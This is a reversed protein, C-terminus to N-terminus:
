LEHNNLCEASHTVPAFKAAKAPIGKQSCHLMRTAFDNTSPARQHHSKISEIVSQGAALSGTRHRVVYNLMADCRTQGLHVLLSEAAEQQSLSVRESIATLGITEAAAALDRTLPSDAFGRRVTELDRLLRPGGEHTTCAVVLAQVIIPFAPAGGNFRVFREVGLMVCASVDADSAGNRAM